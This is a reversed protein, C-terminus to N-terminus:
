LLVVRKKKLLGLVADVVADRQAADAMKAELAGDEIKQDPYIRDVLAQMNEKGLLDKTPRIRNDFLYVLEALSLRFGAGLMWDLLIKEDRRLANRKSPKAPVIVCRSLLSYRASPDEESTYEVLGTRLLKRIAEEEAPSETAVVDLRGRLWLTEDLGFLTFIQGGTVIRLEATIGGKEPIGKSIYYM